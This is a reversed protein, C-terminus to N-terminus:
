CWQFQVLLLARILSKLSQVLLLDRIYYELHTERTMPFITLTFFKYSNFCSIRYSPHFLSAASSRRFEPELGVLAQQIPKSLDSRDRQAENNKMLLILTSFSVEASLFCQFFPAQYHSDPKFQCLIWHQIEGSTERQLKQLGLTWLNDSLTEVLVRTKYKTNVGIYHSLSLLQHQILKELMHLKSVEHWRKLFFCSKLFIRWSVLLICCNINLCERDKLITQAHHNNNVVERIQPEIKIVRVKGDKSLLCSFTGAKLHGNALMSDLMGTSRFDRIGSSALLHKATSCGAGTLHLIQVSCCEKVPLCLHGQVQQSVNSPQVSKMEHSAQCM